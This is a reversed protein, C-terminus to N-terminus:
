VSLFVGFFASIAWMQSPLCGLFTTICVYM